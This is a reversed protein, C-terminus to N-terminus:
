QTSFLSSSYSDALAALSTLAAQQSQLQALAAEMAQFETTLRARKRDLQDNLETVREQLLDSHEDLTATAQPILGETDTIQNIQTQIQVAVGFQSDTFFREIGEPDTQYAERFQEEDFTFHGGSESKIGVDSLRTFPGGAYITNIFMRSLRSEITNLTGEGQLIGPTETEADYAGAEQVRDVAANYDDVLGQLTTVLTDLDRNVSVTVPQDSVGTANLTLGEIANDFTNTSSTLLVGSDTSSGFFVRADQAPALTSVGLDTASDDILLAGAAGGVRASINLRYPSLQTGDNLLTATALTTETGIRSALTELTDSGGIELQFEYSGDIQGSEATGLLNLDRAVTSGDEEVKMRGAGGSTDTLLLGDGTANSSAQVGIGLGNISDIVDQLTEVSSSTLDVTASIGKSNTIKFRGQAVGRGANLDELRTAESVYQRQLNASKLSAGTQALGIGEAFDGSITIASEDVLNRVVIRAGTADYTAEVGLSDGAGDTAQNISELVDALTQAGTLDLVASKGNADIQMTAGTVGAGGNLTKLLVTDLSGMIRGGAALAGSGTDEYTGEQFGLDFLAQSRATRM